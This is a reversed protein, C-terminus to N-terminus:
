DETKVSNERSLDQYLELLFDRNDAKLYHMEGGMRNFTKAYRLYYAPNDSPPEGNKDWDWDSEALDVILMFHNNIHSKRQIEINQAMSLSKEFIMPSMVASGLSMYVGHDLRSVSDAFYLFDTLGTRGIAAGHNMPHTYIIDHGFMPHGTFPIKLEWACAQVSYKKHPHPIRMFGSELRFKRIVGSLDIAAAAVEPNTDFKKKAEDILLSSEPINLGERSIMKGVSEGYGSGEYAGVVLALNIYFGTEDWIGFQGNKVNERVDESTKGQYAFEWDHIIGAGNTALHTVWGERILAILTPSMGNKITHAGFTLIVSKQKQRASRILGATKKILERDNDSLNVPKQSVPIQNTEVSLKNVREALKKIALKDRNFKPHGM